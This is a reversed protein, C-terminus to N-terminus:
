FYGYKDYFEKAFKESNKEFYRTAIEINKKDFNDTLVSTGGAFDIFVNVFDNVSEGSGWWFPYIVMFNEKSDPIAHTSFGRFVIMYQMFVEFSHGININDLILLQKEDDYSIHEIMNEIRKEMSDSFRYGFDSLFETSDGYIRQGLLFWEEWDDYDSINKSPELLYKKLDKKELHIQLYFSSFESM